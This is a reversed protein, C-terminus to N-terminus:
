CASIGCFGGVDFEPVKRKIDRAIQSCEPVNLDFM